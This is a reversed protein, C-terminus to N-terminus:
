NKTSSNSAKDWTSTLDVAHFKDDIIHGKIIKKTDPDPYRNYIEDAAVQGSGPVTSTQLQKIGPIRLAFVTKITSM